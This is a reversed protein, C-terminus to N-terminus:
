QFNDIQKKKLYEVISNAFLEASAPGDATIINHDIVVPQHMYLAGNEELIKVPRKELSSSWVTARKEILVRAKALVIPAICIAALLKNHDVTKQAIKYAQENDLHELVGEGGVFIVADFETPELENLTKTIEVIEGLMGQAMGKQDSFTETQIGAQELIRKPVFYEEDRFKRSAIVFAVKQSPLKNETM